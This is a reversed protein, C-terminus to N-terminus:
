RIFTAPNVSTADYDAGGRALLEACSAETEKLREVMLPRLSVKGAMKGCADDSECVERLWGITEQLQAMVIIRSPDLTKCLEAYVTGISCLSTHSGLYKGARTKNKDPKMLSSTEGAVLVAQKPKTPEDNFIYPGIFVLYIVWSGM